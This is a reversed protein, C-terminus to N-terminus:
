LCELREMAGDKFQMKTLEGTTILETMSAMNMSHKPETVCAGTGILTGGFCNTLSCKPRNVLV